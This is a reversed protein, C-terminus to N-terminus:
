IWDLNIHLLSEREIRQRLAATRIVLEPIIREHTEAFICDVRSVVGTALLRELIPVESGEIDLKLLAVRDPLEAIFPILDIQEVIISNTSTVDAKAAFLSSAQVYRDPNIAFAPSRFLPV